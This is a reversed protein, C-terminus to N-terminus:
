CSGSTLWITWIGYRLLNVKLLTVNYGYLEEALIKIINANLVASDWKNMAIKPEFQQSAYIQPYKTINLCREAPYAGLSCCLYGVLFLLLM